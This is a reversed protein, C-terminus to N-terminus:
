LMCIIYYYEYLQLSYIFTNQNWECDMSVYKHSYWRLINFLFLANIKIYITQLTYKNLYYLIVYIICMVYKSNLKFKYKIKKLKNPVNFSKRRAWMIYIM